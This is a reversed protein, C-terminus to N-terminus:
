RDCSRWPKRCPEGESAATTVGNDRVEIAYPQGQQSTGTPVVVSVAGHDRAEIAALRQLESGQRSSAWATGGETPLYTNHDVFRQQTMGIAEGNALGAEQGSSRAQYAALVTALAILLGVGMVLVMARSNDIRGRGRGVSKVGGDVVKSAQVQTVM